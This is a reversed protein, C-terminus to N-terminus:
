RTSWLGGFPRWRGNTRRHLRGQEVPWADARSTRVAVGPLLFPNGPNTISRAAAMLGARTPNGGLRRLLAVTEFAVAMGHVHDVDRANAGRGHRSLVSRYLRMGPDTVWQPDTPTKLFGLTVAGEPVDAGSAVEASVLMRPRWGIRRAAAFAQLAETPEAWVALVNAGAARLALLRPRLNTEGEEYQVVAVVAARSGALGRRLGATLEVGDVDGARLLVGVRASGLTRGVYRGYVAGEAGAGPPFGLSWRGSAFAAAGSAVFLQPVRRAGLYARAALGEETGVPSVVAFVGDTEVLERAAERAVDPEAAERVVLELRRGGVGGRANVHGLYAELGRAIASGPPAITGLLISGPEIGPDAAGRAFAGPLAVLACALACAAVALRHGM